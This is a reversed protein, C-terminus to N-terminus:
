TKKETVTTPSSQIPIDEIEDVEICIMFDYTKSWKHRVVCLRGGSVWDIEPDDILFKIDEDLADKIQEKTPFKDESGWTWGKKKFFDTIVQLTEEKVTPYSRGSM